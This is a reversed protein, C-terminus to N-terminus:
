PQLGSEPVFVSLYNSHNTGLFPVTTEFSDVKREVVRVCHFVAVSQEASMVSRM